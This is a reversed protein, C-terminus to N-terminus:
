LWIQSPWAAVRIGSRLMILIYNFYYNLIISIIMSYYLQYRYREREIYIYVYMHICICIYISYCLVNITHNIYYDIM